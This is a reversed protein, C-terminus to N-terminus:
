NTLPSGCRCSTAPTASGLAFKQFVVCSRGCDWCDELAECQIRGCLSELTSFSISVMRGCLGGRCENGKPHSSYKKAACHLFIAAVLRVVIPQIQGCCCWCATRPAVSLCRIMWFSHGLASSWHPRFSLSLSFYKTACTNHTPVHSSEIGFASPTFSSFNWVWLWGGWSGTACLPRGTRTPNSWFLM